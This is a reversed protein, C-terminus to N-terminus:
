LLGLASVLDTFVDIRLDADDCQGFGYAAFIFPVGCARAAVQDGTTDGVFWARTVANRELVQRLNDTKPQGTNGWCEVDRFLAGLGSHQLFLEIYGAQCNSVIFLPFHRALERLGESVGPYLTGGHQEVMRNDELATEASILQIHAESLERFTNRICQEHPLGAVRGVDDATIARYPIGHRSLVNNWGRACSENTNWLTGDLDFVLGDPPQPLPTTRKAPETL